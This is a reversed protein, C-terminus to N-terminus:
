HGALISPERFTVLYCGRRSLQRSPMNPFQGDSHNFPSGGGALSSIFWAIFRLVLPTM